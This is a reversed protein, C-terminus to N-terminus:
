IFRWWTAVWRKNKSKKISTQYLDIKIYDDILHQKSTM